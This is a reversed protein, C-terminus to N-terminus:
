QEDVLAILPAAHPAAHAVGGASTRESKEGRCGPVIWNRFAGLVTCM